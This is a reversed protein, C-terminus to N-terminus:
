QKRCMFVGHMYPINTHAMDEIRMCYSRFHEDILGMLQQDFSMCYKLYNYFFSYFSHSKERQDLPQSYHEFTMNPFFRSSLGASACTEMIEDVRFLHKDEAALKDLDRRSYFKMTDIFLQIRGAHDDSIEVGAQRLALPIFQAIAGM